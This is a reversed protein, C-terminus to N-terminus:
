FLVYYYIILRSNVSWFQEIFNFGILKDDNVNFSKLLFFVLGLNKIYM